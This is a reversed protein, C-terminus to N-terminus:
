DGVTAVFNTAHLLRTRELAGKLEYLRPTERFAFLRYLHYQDAFDSFFHVKSQSVHFPTEKALSTTKVEIFRESGNLEYSLIDFGTGDGRTASIREVKNALAELRPAAVDTVFIVHIARGRV